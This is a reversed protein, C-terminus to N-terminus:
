LSAGKVGPARVRTAAYASIMIKIHLVSVGHGDKQKARVTVPFAGIM